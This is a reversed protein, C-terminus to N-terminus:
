QPVEHLQRRNWNFDRIFVGLPNARLAEETMRRTESQYVQVLARMEFREKRKGSPQEYTTEVWDVQWSDDSQQLVSAVETSVTESQARAFPTRAKSGNLYDTVKATAPDDPTLMGYVGFIAARQLGIDTTVRRSLTVFRELQAEIVAKSAHPMPLGPGVAAAAGSRDVEVVYPVFRSLSAFHILAGTSCVCLLLSLLGVIQWM